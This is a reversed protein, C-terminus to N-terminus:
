IAIQTANPISAFRQRNCTLVIVQADEGVAGLVDCCAKLREEDAFGLTDDLIVPVSSGDAVIQACALRGILVLQEKAGLSLDDFSVTRGDLTRSVITLQDDLTVTFTPGFIREGLQRMADALPKALDPNSTERAAVMTKKLLLVARADRDLAEVRSRAQALRSYTDELRDRLGSENAGELVGNLHSRRGEADKLRDSLSAIKRETLAVERETREYNAEQMAERAAALKEEADSLKAQANKLDNHVAEDTTQARQEDIRAAVAKAEERADALRQEALQAKQEAERHATRISQASAAWDKATERARDRREEFIAVLRRAGECDAVSLEILEDVRAEQDDDAHTIEQHEDENAATQPENVSAEQHDDPSTFQHNNIQAIVTEADLGALQAREGETVALETVRFTVSADALAIEAEIQQARRGLEDLDACVLSRERRLDTLRVREADLTRAQELSTVGCRRYIEEQQRRYGAVTEALEQAGEGPYITLDMAGPVEIRMQEDVLRQATQGAAISQGSVTVGDNLARLEIRAFQHTVGLQAGEVVSELKALAEVDASTVTISALAADIQEVERAAAAAEDLRSKVTHRRQYADLIQAAARMRRYLDEARAEEDECRAQAKEAEAFSARVQDAQTRAAELVHVLENVRETRETLEACLEERHKWADQRRKVESWALEHAKLAETLTQKMQALADLRQRVEVLRIKHDDIEIGLQTIQDAADQHDSRAQDLAGLQDTIKEIQDQIQALDERAASVHKKERGTPTFFKGYEREVLGLLAEANENDVGALAKKVGDASGLEVQIFSEGQHADLIELLRPDCVTALWANFADHAQGGIVSENKKGSFVLETGPSKLWRKSYTAQCGDAWFVAEVQPAVDRDVPQVARVTKSRASDKASRLLRVAEVLSSKGAENPGYIVNVGPKLDVCIDSIGRYDSVHLRTIRM